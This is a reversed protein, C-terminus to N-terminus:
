QASVEKMFEELSVKKYNEPIMFLGLPPQSYQISNLTYKFLGNESAVYYEVVLGPLKHYAGSYKADIKPYYYFIFKNDVGSLSVSVRKAKIGAIRKSGFKKKFTYSETTDKKVNFDTKIAYDGKTTTILVYSRNLRLHKIMEQKGLTSSFNVVRQLSDKAYILMKGPISDKPSLREIDYLLEGNFVRTKQANVILSILLFTFLFLNKM